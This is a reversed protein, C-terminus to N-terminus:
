EALLRKAKCTLRWQRGGEDCRQFQRHPPVQGPRDFWEQACRSQHGVEAAHAAALRDRWVRVSEWTLWVTGREAEALVANFSETM